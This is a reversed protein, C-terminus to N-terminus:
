VKRRELEERLVKIEAELRNNDVILAKMRTVLEAIDELLFVVYIKDDDKFRFPLCMTKFTQIAEERAKELWEKKISFSKISGDAAKNGIREKAEPHLIEDVVDGKQFWLAGSGLSRRAEKIDPVESIADAVKQELDKWSDDDSSSATAQTKPSLTRQSKNAFAKKSPKYLSENQCRLCKGYNLCNSEYRCTM